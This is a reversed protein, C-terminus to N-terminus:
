KRVEALQTQLHEVRLQLYRATQALHPLLESAFEAFAELQELRKGTGIQHVEFDHDSM